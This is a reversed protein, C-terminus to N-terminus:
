TTSSISTASTRRSGRSVRFTVVEALKDMVQGFDEGATYATVDAIDAHAEPLTM